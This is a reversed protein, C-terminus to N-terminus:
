HWLVRWKHMILLAMEDVNLIDKQSFYATISKMHGQFKEESAGEKIVIMHEVARQFAAAM